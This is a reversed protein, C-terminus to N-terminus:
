TKKKKKHKTLNFTEGPFEKELQALIEKKREVYSVKEKEKEEGEEDEEDEEIYEIKVRKSSSSAEHVAASSSSSPQLPVGHVVKSSPQYIM